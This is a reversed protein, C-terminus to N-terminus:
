LTIFNLFSVHIKKQKIKAIRESLADFFASKRYAELDFEDAKQVIDTSFSYTQEENRLKLCDFEERSMLYRKREPPIKDCNAWNELMM